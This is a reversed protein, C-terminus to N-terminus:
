SKGTGITVACQPFYTIFVYKAKTTMNTMRIGSITQAVPLSFHQFRCQPGGYARKFFLHHERPSDHFARADVIVPAGHISKFFTSPFRLRM